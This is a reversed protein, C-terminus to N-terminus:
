VESYGLLSPVVTNGNLLHSFQPVLFNLAKDLTMCNADPLTAIQVRM